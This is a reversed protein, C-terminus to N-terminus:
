PRNAEAAAALIESLRAVYRDLNLGEAVVERARRGMGEARDPDGLLSRIAERMGEADGPAVYLGTEGPKLIDEQGRSRTAIVPRGCAMAEYMVLSGAQFDVDRVPVAVLRSTRYLERLEAPALRTQTVNEPLEIPRGRRQKAWPSAAAIVLRVPLGRVAEVLTEYDRQEMGASCITDAAESGNPAWFRHDAPHLVLELKEPPLKLREVAHRLQPSSYVVVRDIHSEVHLLRFFIRKKLPSLRHGVMVHGRRVRFVKFLLALPLGVDESLTHVVDYQSRRQFAIVAHAASRGLLRWVIRVTRGRPEDENILTAGIARDLELYDRRPRRGTRIEEPEGPRVPSAVVIAFRTM